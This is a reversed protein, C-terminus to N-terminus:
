AASKGRLQSTFTSKIAANDAPLTLEWWVGIAAGAALNTGPVSQAVNDDVMVVGSPATLRTAITTSGGVATEIGSKVKGQPDATLVIEADLLATTSDTNKWYSKERYVKQAAGSVAQVFKRKAKTESPNFVHQVTGGSAIRVTVTRSGDAASLTMEIIREATIGLSVPTTGNLTIASTTQLVGASDRYRVTITRTDAGDSLVELSSPSSLETDLIRGAANIAGGATSVDDEPHNTAMYELLKSGSLAM